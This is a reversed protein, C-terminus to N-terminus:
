KSHILRKLWTSNLKKDLKQIVALREDCVLKLEDIIMQREDCINQMESFKLFITDLFKTEKQNLYDQLAGKSKDYLSNSIFILNGWQKDVFANNNLCIHEFSGIRKISICHNFGLKKAEQILGDPHGLEWGAYINPMFYECMLIETAIQDMGKLVNLDNGETDIKIIGFSQSILEAQLLSNLSKCQVQNIKKHQVRMDKQLPHLSSFHSADYNAKDTAHYFDAMHDYYDIAYPFFACETKKALMLLEDRHNPLPEFFAGTLGHASFFHTFEGKAAGIDLFTRTVLYPILLQIIELDTNQQFLNGSGTDSVIEGKLFYM